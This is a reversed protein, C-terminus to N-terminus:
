LHHKRYHSQHTSIEWWFQWFATLTFSARPILWIDGSGKQQPQTQACFYLIHVDNSSLVMSLCPLHAHHLQPPWAVMHEVSRNIQLRTGLGWGQKQQAVWTVHSITSQQSPVVLFDSLTWWVGERTLPHPRPILSPNEMWHISKRVSFQRCHWFHLGVFDSSRNRHENTRFLLSIPWSMSVLTNRCSALVAETHQWESM